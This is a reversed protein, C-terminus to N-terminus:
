SIGGKEHVPRGDCGAGMQARIESMESMESMEGSRAARERARPPSTPASFARELGRVHALRAAVHPARLALRLRWALPANRGELDALLHPADPAVLGRRAYWEDVLARMAGELALAAADPDRELLAEAEHLADRWALARVYQERVPALAHRGRGIIHRAMM